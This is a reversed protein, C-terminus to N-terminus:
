SINNIKINELVKFIFINFSEWDDYIIANSL